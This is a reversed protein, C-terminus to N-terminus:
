EGRSRPTRGGAAPAGRLGERLVGLWTSALEGAWGLVGGRGGGAGWIQPLAGPTVAGARTPGEEQLESRHCAGELDSGGGPRSRQGRWGAGGSGRCGGPASVRGAAGGGSPTPTCSAGSSPASRPWAPCTPAPCRPSSRWWCSPRCSWCRAARPRRPARAGAAGRGPCRRRARRSANKRRTRTRSAILRRRRLRAGGSSAAGADGRRALAASALACRWAPGLSPRAAAARACAGGLALGAGRSLRAGGRPLRAGGGLASGWGTPSGLGAGRSFRAGGRRLAWDRGLAPVEPKAGGALLSMGCGERPEAASEERPRHDESSGRPSTGRSCM